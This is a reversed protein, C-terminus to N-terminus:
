SFLAPKWTGLRYGVLESEKTKHGTDKKAHKYSGGCTSHTVRIDEQVGCVLEPNQVNVLYLRLNVQFTLALSLKSETTYTPVRM